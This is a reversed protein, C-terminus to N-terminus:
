ELVKGTIVSKQQAGITPNKERKLVLWGDLGTTIDQTRKPTSRRFIDTEM